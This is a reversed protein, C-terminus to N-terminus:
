HNHNHGEPIAGSNEALRLTTVSKIVIVEGGKLGDTIVTNLGDSGGTTVPLRRYAHDGTKEYVFYSGQQESLASRPVSICANEGAGLLYVEATAGPAIAASAPISFYVAVFGNPAAAGAQAGSIRRGGVESIRLAKGDPLVINADTASRAMDYKSQPVDVRLTLDGGSSLRMLVAGAEAFAGAPVDVSTVVGSIPAHVAGSAAPSYAARAQEYAALAANYEAQTVLHDDYLPKLRDVERKAAQMAARATANTRSGEVADAKIHAVTAGRQVAAGVTINQPYTVTGALPATVGAMSSNASLFTGAAKVSESMMGSRVTDVQVGFRAAMEPELVIEGEAHNHGGAAEQGEHHHEEAESHSHGCGGASIALVSICIATINKM